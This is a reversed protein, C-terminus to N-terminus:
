ADEPKRTKNILMERIEEFSIPRQFNDWGVDLRKVDKNYSNIVGHAHGHLMWSGSGKKNWKLMPYHSMVITIKESPSLPDTIVKKFYDKIKYFGTEEINIDHNGKILIIKGNLKKVISKIRRKSVGVAFDGLYYVTDNKKIHKNWICIIDNDMKKVDEYPRNCHKIISQHGFHCDSTFWIM